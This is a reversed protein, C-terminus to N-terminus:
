KSLLGTEFNITGLQAWTVYNAQKAEFIIKITFVKGSFSNGVLSGDLSLESLVDVKTAPAIPYKGDVEVGPRYYYYGDTTELVWGSALTYEVLNSADTPIAGELYTIHILLRLESEVNSTNMLNFATTILNQGPVVNDSTIVGETWIYTVDGVTFTKEPTTKTDTLWALVGGTILGLTVALAMLLIWIRKKNM